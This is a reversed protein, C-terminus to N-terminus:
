HDRTHKLNLKDILYEEKGSRIYVKLSGEEPVAFNNLSCVVVMKQDDKVGETSIDIPKDDVGTQVLVIQYKKRKDLKGIVCVVFFKALGPSIKNGIPDLRDEKDVHLNLDNFYAGVFTSKGNIEQRVDDCFLCSATIGNM